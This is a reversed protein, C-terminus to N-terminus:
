AAAKRLKRRERETTGAWIGWKEDNALADALCEARMPCPDRRSDGNCIAKADRASAGQEPFWLAPDTQACLAQGRWDPLNM